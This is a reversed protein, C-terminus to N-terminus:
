LKNLIPAVISRKGNASLSTFSASIVMGSPAFSGSAFFSEIMISSLNRSLGANAISNHRPFTLSIASYQRFDIVKDSSARNSYSLFFTLSTFLSSATTSLYSSAIPEYKTFTDLLFIEFCSLWLIDM